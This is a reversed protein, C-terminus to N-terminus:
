SPFSIVMFRDDLWPDLLPKVDNWELGGGGCGPRPVVVQQWGASDALALLEQVSRTILHLDPLSWATEEVPFSVIGCGLDFVHNGQEMIHRGLKEALGPLSLSAQKAVGRGLVARGDKTLSGNVTIVIISRGLYEWINGVTEVM